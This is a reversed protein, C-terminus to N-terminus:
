KMTKTKVIIRCHLFYYLQILVKQILLHGFKVPVTYVQKQKTMISYQTYITSPPFHHLGNYFLATIYRSTSFPTQSNELYVIYIIKVAMVTISFCLSTTVMISLKSNVSRRSHLVNPITERALVLQRQRLSDITVALMSTTVMSKWDNRQRQNAVEELCCSLAYFPTWSNMPRQPFIWLRLILGTIICLSEQSVQYCILMQYFEDTVM